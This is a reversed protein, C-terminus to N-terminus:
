PGTPHQATSPIGMRPFWYCTPHVPGAVLPTLFLKLPELVSNQSEPAERPLTQATLLPTIPSSPMGRSPPGQPLLTSVSGLTSHPLLSGYPIHRRGDRSVRGQGSLAPLGPEPGSAVTRSTNPPAPPPPHAPHGWLVAKELTTTGGASHSPPCPGSKEGSHQGPGPRPFVEPIRHNTQPLPQVICFGSPPPHTANSNTSLGPFPSLAPAPALHTPTGPMTPGHAACQPM